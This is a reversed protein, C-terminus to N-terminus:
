RAARRRMDNRVTTQDLAVGLRKYDADHRQLTEWNNTALPLGNRDLVDGKPIQQLIERLRPNYALALSKDAFRVEAGKIAFQDPQMLQFYAARSLIAIGCLGLLGALVYTPRGFNRVQATDSGNSSVALIIALTIFNAVMSTRGFSLFPSVVGSLPLLGLLGGAILILQLSVILTLGAVFAPTIDLSRWRDGDSRNFIMFLGTLALAASPILQPLGGLIKERVLRGTGNPLTYLVGLTMGQGSILLIPPGSGASEYYLDAGGNRAVPM